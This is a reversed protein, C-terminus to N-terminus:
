KIKIIKKINKITSMEVIHKGIIKIIVKKTHKLKERINKTTNRIGNILIRRINKIFNELLKKLKKRITKIINKGEIQGSTTVIM